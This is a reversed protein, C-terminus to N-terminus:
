KQSSRLNVRREPAEYSTNKNSFSTYWRVGGEVNMATKLRELERSVKKTKDQRAELLPKDPVNVREDIGERRLASDIRVEERAQELADITPAEHYEVEKIPLLEFFPFRNEVLDGNPDRLKFKFGERGDVSYM